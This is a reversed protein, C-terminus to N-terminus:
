APGPLRNAIPDRLSPPDPLSVPEDPMAQPRRPIEARQPTDIGKPAAPTPADPTPRGNPMPGLNPMPGPAAAAGGEPQLRIQWGGGLARYVQILGLAIQGRSQAWSDEQNVLNSEIVAYQNFSTTGGRLRNLGVVVAREGAEASQRLLDARDQTELFAVLGNEVESNATLVTNQYTTVLERFTADQFRVANVLRGYNLINWQFSPGVSGSFSQPTLLQSLKNAQYNISGNLTFTPYLSAQAIGILEAQMAAQREAKRVDPRRRLLEAPIGVAVEKPVNPIYMTGIIEWLAEIRGTVKPDSLDGSELLQELENSAKDLEDARHRDDAAWVDLTKELEAPPIGLLISLANLAQRKDIELQPIQARTQMLNSTAQNLDVASVNPQGIELRRSVDSQVQDQLKVNKRLLAIREQDTRIQVYDNAVDGLLTVLVADYNEVSADLQDNAWAINRRIAGWM